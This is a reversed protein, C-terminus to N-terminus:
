ALGLKMEYCIEGQGCINKVKKTIQFGFKEYLRIAPQNNVNVYLLIFSIGNLKMEEISRKLLKEAFKRGRSNRDIAIESIVSQKEFGKLSLTARLYYICYGVIKDENKIVYFVDRFNKSYKLIKEQNRHKFGEAQIRFIDPLMSNEVSVINERKTQRWQRLLFAGTYDLVIKKFSMLYVAFRPNSKTLNM